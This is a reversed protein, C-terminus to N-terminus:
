SSTRRLRPIQSVTSTATRFRDQLYMLRIYLDPAPTTARPQVSSPRDRTSGTNKYCVWLRNTIARCVGMHRAIDGPNAEAYVRGIGNPCQERLKSVTIEVEASFSVHDCKGISDSIGRYVINCRAFYSMKAVCTVHLM